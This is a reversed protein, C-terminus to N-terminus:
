NFPKTLENFKFNLQELSQLYRKFDKLNQECESKNQTNKQWNERADAFESYLDMVENFIEAKRADLEWYREPDKIKNGGSGFFTNGILEGMRDLNNNWEEIRINKEKPNTDIISKAENIKTQYDRIEKQASDIVGEYHKIRENSLEKIKDLIRNDRKKSLIAPLVRMIKDLPAEQSFQIYLVVQQLGNKEMTQKVKDQIQNRENPSKGDVKNIVIFLPIDELYKKIIQVSRENVDGANADIVWFLADAEKVVETTRIEDEHNNSSFGPTDLISLKDLHPNNYEVVFHRVLKSLNINELSAKSFEKFTKLHMNKLNEDADTFQVSTEHGASIYTAVATTPASSVPLTFQPDEKDQSLIRNVISTKGASFEGVFAVVTKGKLWTKRELNGWKWIDDCLEKCDIEKYEKEDLSSTERFIECVNNEVFQIVAETKERIEVADRNDAEKANLVEGVFGLSQKKVDLEEETKKAEAKVKDLEQSKATCDNEITLLSIKLESNEKKSEDLEKKAAKLDLEKDNIENKKDALDKELTQIRTEKEALQSRLSIKLENNEKKSEDLEKKAAKLDLEKDNIENKKEALDKELTQIRTEKETLQSCLSIKLESNEKKSEDLEKKAVKLELEKNNIEDKRDALDKELTKILTEKEALQSSLSIKLESNEKKSEDLEKKAVKLDLEKNNIEDKKDALNKELTKILTERTEAVERKLREIEINSAGGEQTKVDVKAQTTQIPSSKTRGFLKSFWNTM